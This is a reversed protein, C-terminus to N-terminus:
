KKSFANTLRRGRCKLQTTPFSLLTTTVYYEQLVSVATPPHFLSSPLSSPSGVLALPSAGSLRRGRREQPPARRRGAAATGLPQGAAQRARRAVSAAPVPGPLCARSRAAHGLSAAPPPAAAAPLGATAPAAASAGAAATPRAGPPRRRRLPGARGGSVGPGQHSLAQGAHRAAVPAAFVVLPRGTGATTRAALGVPRQQRGRRWRLAGGSRRRHGLFLGARPERQEREAGGVVRRGVAPRRQQQRRGRAEVTKHEGTELYETNWRAVRKRKAAAAQGDDTSEM